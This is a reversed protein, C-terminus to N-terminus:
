VSFASYAWCCGPILVVILGASPLRLFCHLGLSVLGFAAPSTMGVTPDLDPVASARAKRAKGRGSGKSDMRRWGAREVGCTESFRPSMEHALLNPSIIILFFFACILVHRQAACICPVTGITLMVATSGGAAFSILTLSPPPGCVAEEPITRNM